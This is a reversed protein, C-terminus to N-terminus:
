KCIGKKKLAKKPGLVPAKPKLIMRLSEVNVDTYIETMRIASHGVFESVLKISEGANLKQCIFSHRTGNKLAIHPFGAKEVANNWLWNLHTKEYFRGQQNRFLFGSLMTKKIEVLINFLDDTIPITRDNGTKTRDMLINDSFTSQILVVKRKEDFCQVDLARAEGPRCGTDIMFNYIPRHYEPIHNLIIEQTEQDIWGAHKREVPMKKFKPAKPIDENDEADLLIARLTKMINRRSNPKLYVPLWLNFEKVKGKNIDRIDIEKFFPIMYKTVRSKFSKITGPSCEKMKCKQEYNKIWQMAYDSFRIKKLDRKKFDKPNFNGKEIRKNVEILTHKAIEYIQLPKGEDNCYVKTKGKWPVDLYFKTPMEIKQKKLCEECVMLQGTDVFKGGCRSCKQKTRIYGKIAMASVGEQLNTICSLTYRNSGVSPLDTDSLSQQVRLLELQLELTKIQNEVKPAITGMM